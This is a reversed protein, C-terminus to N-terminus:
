SCGTAFVIPPGDGRERYRITGQPLEVRRKEGLAESISM